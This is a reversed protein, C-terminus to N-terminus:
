KKKWVAYLTVNDTLTLTNGSKYEAATATKTTAWGLFYYGERVPSSKPATAKAGYSVTVAAPAGSTGGM